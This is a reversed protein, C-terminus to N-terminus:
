VNSNEKAVEKYQNAFDKDAEPSIDPHHCSYRLFTNDKYTVIKEAIDQPEVNDTIIPMYTSSKPISWNRKFVKEDHVIREEISESTDGRTYMRERRTEKSISLYVVLFKKKGTYRKTLATIGAPDIVYVDNEEIQQTTACYHNGDFFTEAVKDNDKIQAYEEESVFIHGTEGEYRPKRTTYSQIQSLGYEKTLIDAVTSKGSGSKGVLLIMTDGVFVGM